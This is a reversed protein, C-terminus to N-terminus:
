RKLVTLCMGAVVCGVRAWPYASVFAGTAWGDFMEPLVEVDARLAYCHSQQSRVMSGPAKRLKDRACTHDVGHSCARNFTRRTAGLTVHGADTGSQISSTGADITILAVSLISVAAGNVAGGDVLLQCGFFWLVHLCGVLHPRGPVASRRLSAEDLDVTRARWVM